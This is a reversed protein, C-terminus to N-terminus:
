DIKAGSFKVAKAWKQTDAALFADLESPSMIMPEAGLERIRKVIAPEALGANVAKNLTAITEAPTAKPAGLGYWAIVEYGPVVSAVPPIGPLLPSANLSTVALARLRGDRIFGMSVGGNVFMLQTRGAVLDALAAAAGRYPVHVMSVGAMMQFLEGALHTPTGNGASAMNIKGPNAKAYSILEAVSKAAFAPNTVMVFPGQLIGAVMAIDRIFDFPLNKYLTADIADKAGALILTGGDPRAEVVAETALNGGADPRYDVVVPQGLRQQLAQAILRAGIDLVGGPPVGVVIRIPRPFAKAKAFHAAIPLAVLGGALHLFRRRVIQRRALTVYMLRDERRLIQGGEGM